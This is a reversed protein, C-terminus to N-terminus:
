AVARQIVAASTHSRIWVSRAPSPLYTTLSRGNSIIAPVRAIFFVPLAMRTAFRSSFSARRCREVLSQCTTVFVFGIVNLM